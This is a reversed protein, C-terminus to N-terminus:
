KLASEYDKLYQVPESALFHISITKLATDPYKQTFDQIARLSIAAARDMPFKFVGTSISPFAIREKGQSHALVLSNYYCSYLCNRNEEESRAIRYDPGAVVIVNDIARKALDGSGIMEAYGSVYHRNYKDRLKRHEAAYKDGGKDHIAGDIGGGGRLPLNAANVIVDAGSKFMDQRRISINFPSKTPFQLQLETKADNLEAKIHQKQNLTLDGPYPHVTLPNEKATKQPQVQPTVITKQPLPTPKVQQDFKKSVIAEALKDIKQSLNGHKKKCCISKLWQSFRVNWAPKKSSFNENLKIKCLTFGKASVLSIIKSKSDYRLETDPSSLREFRKAFRAIGHGKLKGQHLYSKLEGVSSLSNM